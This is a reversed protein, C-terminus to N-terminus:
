AEALAELQDHANPHARPLRRRSQHLVALEQPVAGAASLFASFGEPMVDELAVREVLLPLPHHSGEPLLQLDVVRRDDLRVKEHRQPHPLPLANNTRSILLHRKVLHHLVIGHQLHQISGGQLGLPALLEASEQVHQLPVFGDDKRDLLLLPLPDGQRSHLQCLIQLIGM